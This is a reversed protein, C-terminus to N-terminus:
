LGLNLYLGNRGTTLLSLLSATRRIPPFLLRYILVNTVRCVHRDFSISNIVRIRIHQKTSRSYTPQSLSKFSPSTNHATYPTELLLCSFSCTPNNTLLLRVSEEVGLSGGGRGGLFITNQRWTRHSKHIKAFICLNM